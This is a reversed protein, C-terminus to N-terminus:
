YLTEENDDESEYEEEDIEQEIHKVPIEYRKGNRKIDMIGSDIDIRVKEKEIWDVGLIFIEGPVDVVEVDMKTKEEGVFFELNKIMGLSAYKKGGGFPSFSARSAELKEYPIKEYIERTMVTASAGTDVFAKIENGQINAECTTSIYKPKGDKRLYNVNGREYKQLIKLLGRKTITNPLNKIIYRALKFDKETQGDVEMEKEKMRRERPYTPCKDLLHGSQGCRPCWAKKCETAWHGVIGCVRCTNKKRRVDQGKRLGEAQRQKRQEPTLKEKPRKEEDDSEITDNKKRKKGSRLGFVQKENESFEEDSSNEQTLVDEEEFTTSL